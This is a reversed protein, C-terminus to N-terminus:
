IKLTGLHDYGKLDKKNEFKFEFTDPNSVYLHSLAIGIDVDNWKGLIKRKVINHRVKYVDFGDDTHKFYWPQSNVASPALQAPILKENERDSIDTLEKRKFQSIDRSLDASKGFAITIVFDPNNRKLSAMGVWCSGIDLSQLFLSLQQFVFGINVLGLHSKESYLALYYPASWPTKLSVEDRKFIEYYYHIDETLPSADSIFDNISSLDIEDDL